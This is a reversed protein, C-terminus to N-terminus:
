KIIEFHHDLEIRGKTESLEEIIYEIVTKKSMVYDNGSIINKVNRYLYDTMVVIYESELDVDEMVIRHGIPKNINVTYNFGKWVTMLTPELIEENYYVEGNQNSLATATRELIRKIEKGSLTIKIPKDTHIYSHYVDKNQIEGRLGKGEPNGIQACVFDVNNFARQMSNQICQIFVHPEIFLDKIDKYDLIVPMDVVPLEAWHQVAKQDFYTLELLDRDEPYSSIEVHKISSDIIEVSNTRKKFQISMDIINTADKGPQIFHTEAVKMDVVHEQHGTIIVNVGETSKMMNEANHSYYARYNSKDTYTNLGGHYLMILFDPSEKEHLYRVWRKASVMSEGVTVENELEVNKNEMLGSSTFGIIGIKIGDVYKITYPTTFYPEKTKSHEINAALWPFRSLAISRNLFDLGFNFEDPSVGSADFKMDNMIKIMPNRKYPAIQAYYFAFMSGSLMGGNDLLLVHHNTKRKHKVYTAMKLINGSIGTRGIQGHLDSTALLDITVTENTNM